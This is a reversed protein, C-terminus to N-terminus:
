WPAGSVHWETDSLTVHHVQCMGSLIQCHSVACRIYALTVYHVEYIVTLMHCHCLAGSINCDVDSLTVCHVQYIVTLMHCLAGSM